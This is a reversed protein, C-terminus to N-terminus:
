VPPAAENRISRLWDMFPRIEYYNPANPQTRAPKPRSSHRWVLAKLQGLEMGARDALEPLTALPPRPKKNPPRNQLRM